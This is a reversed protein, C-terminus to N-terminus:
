SFGLGPQHMLNRYSIQASSVPHPPPSCGLHSSDKRLSRHRARTSFRMLISGPAGPPWPPPAASSGTEGGQQVAASPCPTPHPARCSESNSLYLVSLTLPSGGVVRGRISTKTLTSLVLKAASSVASCRQTLGPGHLCVCPPCRPCRLCKPVVCVSPPSVCAQPLAVPEKM